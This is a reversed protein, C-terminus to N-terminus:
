PIASSPVRQAAQTRRIHFNRVGGIIIFTLYLPVTFCGVGIKTTTQVAESNEVDLCGQAQPIKPANHM